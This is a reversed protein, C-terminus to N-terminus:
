LPLKIQQDQFLNEGSSATGCLALALFTVKTYGTQSRWLQLKHLETGTIDYEVVPRNYTRVYSPVDHICVLTSEAVSLMLKPHTIILGNYVSMRSM